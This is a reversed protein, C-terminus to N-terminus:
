CINDPFIWKENPQSKDYMKKEKARKRYMDIPPIFVVGVCYQVIQQFIQGHVLWM